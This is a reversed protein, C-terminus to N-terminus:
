RYFVDDSDKVSTVIQGDKVALRVGSRTMRTMDIECHNNNRLGSYIQNELRLASRGGQNQLTMVFWKNERANHRFVMVGIGEYDTKYGIHSQEIDTEQIETTTLMMMFGRSKNLDSAITFELEIEFNEDTIKSDFVYAGYRDRVAPNLKVKDNHELANGLTM